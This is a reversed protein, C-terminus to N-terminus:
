AGAIRIHNYHLLDKGVVKAFAVIAAQRAGLRSKCEKIKSRIAQAQDRTIIINKM